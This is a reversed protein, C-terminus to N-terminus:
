NLGIKDFAKIDSEMFNWIKGVRENIKAGFTGFLRM